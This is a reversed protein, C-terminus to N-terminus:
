EMSSLKITFKTGKGVESEVSINGGNLEIMQRVMYLGLGTGTAQEDDVREFISFVKELDKEMDIGIGNDEFELVTLDGEKYSSITIVTKRKKSGYKISNSILNYFISELISSSYQMSAVNFKTNFRVNNNKILILLSRKTETVLNNFYLLEVNKKNAQMQKITKLTAKIKDELLQASSMLLKKIENQSEDEYDEMIEVLGKINNIPNKLDHSLSYSFQEINQNQASLVYTKEDVLIELKKARRKLTLVRFLYFLFIFFVSTGFFVYRFYPTEWYPLLVTFEKNDTNLVVDNIPDITRVSFTYNGADLTSYSRSTKLTSNSWEEDSGELKTQYYTKEKLSISQYNFQIPFSNYSVNILTDPPTAKGQVLFDTINLINSSSEFLEPDFTQIVGEQTAFYLNKYDRFTFPLFNKKNLYKNGFHSYTNKKIDYLVIEEKTSIWLNNGEQITSYTATLPISKDQNFNELLDDEPHFLFTGGNNSSLWLTNRKAKSIHVFQQSKAIEHKNLLPLFKQSKLQYINGEGMLYIENNVKQISYANFNELGSFLKIENSYVVYIYIRNDAIILLDGNGTKEIYTVNKNALESFSFENQTENFYHFMGNKTGYFYENDFQIIACNLERKETSFVETYVLNSSDFSLTVINNKFTLLYSEDKLKYSSMLPGYQWKYVPFNQLPFSIIGNNQSAIWLINERDVIAENIEDDVLGNKSSISYLIQKKQNLITISQDKGIECDFSTNDLFNFSTNLSDQIEFFYDTSIKTVRNNPHFVFLNGERDIKLDSVANQSLGQFNDYNVFSNGDFRSLGEATGIWLYGRADQVLSTTTNSALGNSSTYNTFSYVQAFNTKGLLVL